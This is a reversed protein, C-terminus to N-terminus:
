DLEMSYAMNEEVPEGYVWLKGPQSSDQLTYDIAVQMTDDHSDTMIDIRFVDEVIPNAAYEPFEKRIVFKPTDDVCSFSYKMSTNSGIYIGDVDHADALISEFSDAKSQDSFDFCKSIISVSRGNVDNTFMFTLKYASATGDSDDATHVTVKSYGVAIPLGEDIEIIGFDERENFATRSFKIKGDVTSTRPSLIADSSIDSTIIDCDCLTMEEDFAYTCHFVENVTDYTLIRTGVSPYMIVRGNAYGFGGFINVENNVASSLDIFKVDTKHGADFVHSIRIATMGGEPSLVLDAGVAHASSFALNNVYPYEDVVAKSYGDGDRFFRAVRLVSNGDMGGVCAIAGDVGVCIDTYRFGDGVSMQHEISVFKSRELTGNRLDEDFESCMLYDVGSANVISWKSAHIDTANVWDLGDTSYVKEGNGYRAYFRNTGCGFLHMVDDALPIQTFTIGDDTSLFIRHGGREEALVRGNCSIFKVIPETTVSYGNSDKFSSATGVSDPTTKRTRLVGNFGGNESWYSVIIGETTESMVSQFDSIDAIESSLADFVHSLTKEGTLADYKYVYGLTTNFMKTTPVSTDAMTVLSEGLYLEIGDKGTDYYSDITTRNYGVDGKTIINGVYKVYPRKGGSTSNNIYSPALYAPNGDILFATSAYTTGANYITNVVTQVTSPSNFAGFWTGVRGNCVGYCSRGGITASETYGDVGISPSTMGVVVVDNRDLEKPHCVNWSSTSADYRFVTGDAYEDNGKEIGILTGDTATEPLNGYSKVIDYPTFNYECIGSIPDFSMTNSKVSLVSITQGDSHLSYINDGSDVLEDFDVKVYGHMESHIPMLAMKKGNVVKANPVATDEIFAACRNSTNLGDSIMNVGHNPKSDVYEWGSTSYSFISNAPYSDSKTAGDTKSHVMYRDGNALSSTPMSKLERMTDVIGVYGGGDLGRSIDIINRGDFSEFEVSSGEMSEFTATSLMAHKHDDEVLFGTVEHFSPNTYPLLNIFRDFTRVSRNNSFGIISSGYEHLLSMDFAASLEGFQPQIPFVTDVAMKGNSFINSKGDMGGFQQLYGIDGGGLVYRTESPVYAVEDDTIDFSVIQIMCDTFSSSVHDFTTTGLFGDTYGNVTTSITDDGEPPNTTFSLYLRSDTCSLAFSYRTGGDTFKDFLGNRVDLGFKWTSVDSDSFLTLAVEMRKEETYYKGYATFIGRKSSIDGIHFIEENAGSIFSSRSDVYEVNHSSDRHFVVIQSYNGDYSEDMKGVITGGKLYDSDKDDAYSLYMLKQNYSFGMDFFKQQSIESMYSSYVATNGCSSMSFDLSIPYEVKDYPILEM